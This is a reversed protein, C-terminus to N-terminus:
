QAVPRALQALAAQATRRISGDDGWRGRSCEELAEVAGAAVARRFVEPDRVAGAAASVANLLMAAAQMQVGPAEPHGQMAAVAAELAGAEAAGRKHAAELCLNSLASCGEEQVTPEGEHEQMGGVVAAVAGCAVARTENEPSAALNVIAACGHQM